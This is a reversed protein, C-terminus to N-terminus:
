IFLHRSSRQPAFDRESPLCEGRGSGSQVAVVISCLGISVFFFFYDPEEAEQYSPSMLCQSCSCSVRGHGPCVEGGM